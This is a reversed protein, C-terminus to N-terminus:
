VVLEYSCAGEVSGDGDEIPSISLRQSGGLTSVIRFQDFAHIRNGPDHFLPNIRDWVQKCKETADDAVPNGNEDRSRDAFIYMRLTPYVLTNRSSQPAWDDYHLFSLACKGSSEVNANPAPSVSPRFVWPIGDTTGVLGDAVLEQMASSQRVYRVVNRLLDSTNYIGM